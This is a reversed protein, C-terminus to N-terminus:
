GASRTDDGEGKLDSALKAKITRFEEDSLGGREYVRRFNTMIEHADESKENRRDRMKRAVTLMVVSLAFIAAFLLAARVLDEVDAPSM